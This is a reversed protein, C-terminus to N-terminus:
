NLIMLKINRLSCGDKRRYIDVKESQHTLNQFFDIFVFTEFNSTKAM